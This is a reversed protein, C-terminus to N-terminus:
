LGWTHNQAAHGSCLSCLVVAVTFWDCNQLWHQLSAEQFVSVTRALPSGLASQQVVTGLVM